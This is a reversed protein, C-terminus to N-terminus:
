SKHRHQSLLVNKTYRFSYSTVAAPFDTITLARLGRDLGGRTRAADVRTRAADVRAHRALAASEMRATAYLEDAYKKLDADM